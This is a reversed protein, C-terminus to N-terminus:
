YNEFRPMLMDYDNGLIEKAKSLLKNKMKRDCKIKLCKLSRLLNTCGVISLFIKMCSGEYDRLNTYVDDYYYGIWLIEIQWGEMQGLEHEGDTLIKCNTFDLEKVHKAARLISSFEKSNFLLDLIWISKTAKPM